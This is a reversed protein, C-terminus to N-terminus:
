QHDFRLRVKDRAIHQGDCITRNNIQGRCAATNPLREAAFSRDVLYARANREGILLPVCRRHVQHSSHQMFDGGPPLLPLVLRLAPGGIRLECFEFGEDGVQFSRALGLTLPALRSKRSRVDIRRLPPVCASSLRAAQAGAARLPPATLRQAADREARSDERAERAQKMDEAIASLEAVLRDSVKREADYRKHTAVIASLVSRLMNGM